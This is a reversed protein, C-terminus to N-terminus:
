HDALYTDALPSDALIYHPARQPKTPVSHNFKKLMKPIYTPMSVDVYGKEYNWDFTYGCYNKGEWDVSTPYGQKLANILHHADEKTYYKVGFDDVCLCFKTKRTVHTWLSLSHPVPSYGFPKLHSVLQKYALIAAQKLGYM